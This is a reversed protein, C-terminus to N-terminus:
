RMGWARVAVDACKEVDEIEFKSLLLLYIIAM